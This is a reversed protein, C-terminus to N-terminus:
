LLDFYHVAFVASSLLVFVGFGYSLVVYGAALSPERARLDDIGKSRLDAIDLTDILLLYGDGHVLPNLSFFLQSISVVITAELVLSGPLFLYYTGIVGLLWVVEVFPGALTIWRRRNRPLMWGGTADTVVTLLVGNVVGFGLTPDVYPKSAVYHGLEHIAVTLAVLFAVLGIREPTYLAPDFFVSDASFVGPLLIWIAGLVLGLLAVFLVARPWLRIDDPPVLRRVPDDPRLYGETQLQKTLERPTGELDDLEVEGTALKELLAIARDSVRRLDGDSNRIYTERGVEIKTFGVAADPREIESNM